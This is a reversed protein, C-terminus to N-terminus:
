RHNDALGLGLAPAAGPLDRFLLPVVAEGLSIIEQFAPHNRIQTSSSLHSTDRMWVAELDRVRRQLAEDRKPETPHHCGHSGKWAFQMDEVFNMKGTRFPQM